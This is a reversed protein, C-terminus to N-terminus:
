VPVPIEEQLSLSYLIAEKVHLGTIQSLARAYYIMQLRYRELLVTEEGKKIRDTKYDVLVAGDEEEFWADIIGQILVPEESDAEDMESAAIGMVFQSEKHLKGLRGAERMRRATESQFFRWLRREDLVEMAAPDMLEEERIRELERKLDAREWIKHFALLELARHYATGRFVAGM